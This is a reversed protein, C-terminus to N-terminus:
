KRKLSTILESSDITSDAQVNRAILDLKKAGINYAERLRDADGEMKKLEKEKSKDKSKKADTEGKMIEEVKTKYIDFAKKQVDVQRRFEQTSKGIKRAATDIDKIWSKAAKDFAAVDAICRDIDKKAKPLLKPHKSGAM